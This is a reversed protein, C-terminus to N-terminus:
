ATHYLFVFYVCMFVSSDICLSIPGTHCFGIWLVVPPSPPRSDLAIIKFSQCLRCFLRLESDTVKEPLTVYLKIVAIKINWGSVGHPVDVRRRAAFAIVALGYRESLPSASVSCGPLRGAQVCQSWTAQGGASSTVNM